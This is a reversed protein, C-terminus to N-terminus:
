LLLNKLTIISLQMGPPNNAYLVSYDGIIKTADIWFFDMNLPNFTLFPEETRDCLKRM